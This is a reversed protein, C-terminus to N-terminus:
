LINCVNEEFEQNAKEPYINVNIDITDGMYIQTEEVIIELSEPKLVTVSYSASDTISEDKSYTATIILEGKKILTLQNGDISSISNDNVSWIIDDIIDSDSTISLTKVEGVYMDTLENISFSIVVPEKKKCGNSIILLGLLIMFIFSFRLIKNFQM